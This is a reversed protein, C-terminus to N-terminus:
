FSVRLGGSISRMTSYNTNSAATFSQRPDLGKRASWLALNEAAGYVRLESIGIRETLSKPLTYGITLNNFCLYNSNTLFRTSLSNQSQFKDDSAIRPVDTNTNEPTWASERICM